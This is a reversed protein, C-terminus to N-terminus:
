IFFHHVTELLSLSRFCFLCVFLCVFLPVYCPLENYSPSNDETEPILPISAASSPISSARSPVSSLNEPNQTNIKLSHFRHIHTRLNAATCVIKPCLFCECAEGIALHIKTIHRVMDVRAKTSFKCTKCVLTSLISSSSQSYTPTNHNRFIHMKFSNFSQFCCGCTFCKFHGNKQFKHCNQHGNILRLKETKYNCNTCAYM